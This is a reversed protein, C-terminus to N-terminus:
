SWSAGVPKVAKKLYITEDVSEDDLGARRQIPAQVVNKSVSQM